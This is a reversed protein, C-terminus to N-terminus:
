QAGFKVGSPVTTRGKAIQTPNGHMPVGAPDVRGDAQGPLRSNRGCGIRLMVLNSTGASRFRYLTGRPLLIGEYPGLVTSEGVEDFFEARGELVIFSHEEEPHAHLDNEGGQAYIKLHVWMSDSSYVPSDQAGALLLSGQIAFRKANAVPM